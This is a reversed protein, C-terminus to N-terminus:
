APTKARSSSTALDKVTDSAFLMWRSLRAGIWFFVRQRGRFVSMSHDLISFYLKVGMSPDRFLDEPNLGPEGNRTLAPRVIGAMVVLQMDKLIRRVDEPSQEKAPQPDPHRDTFITPIEGDPFDVFPNIRRITFKMGNVRVDKHGRLKEVPTRRSFPWM